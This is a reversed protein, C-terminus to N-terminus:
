AALLLEQLRPIDFGVVYREGQRIVPVTRQNTLAILEAQLDADTTVDIEEYPIGQQALWEKAKVCWPCTITSYIQVPAPTM